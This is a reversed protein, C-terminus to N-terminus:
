CKWEVVEGNEVVHCSEIISTIIFIDNEHLNLHNILQRLLTLQINKVGAKSWLSPLFLNVMIKYHQGAQYSTDIFTLCIDKLDIRLIQAWENTLAELQKESVTIKNTYCNAIPM